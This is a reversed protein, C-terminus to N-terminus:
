VIEEIEVTVTLKVRKHYFPVAVNSAMSGIGRLIGEDTNIHMEDKGEGILGTYTVTKKVSEM